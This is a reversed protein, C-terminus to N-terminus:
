ASEYAKKKIVCYATRASDGQRNGFGEEQMLPAFSYLNCLNENLAVSVHYYDSDTYAMIARAFNTRPSSASVLYVPM